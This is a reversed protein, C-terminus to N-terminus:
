TVADGLLSVALAYFNSPNYRRIATFNAYVMFAPGGTGDPMIVAGVPDPRGFPSGDERRVGMRQWEGLPHKVDRGVRSADLDPPVQVPQASPEGYRWGSMALYNAISGLVDGRSDWIDRRGHGEFDVAYRLYSDPMFQPQGMAGAYSGLMRGPMVDGHDLIKLASILQSRFFSARRGEWALTALAEVVNYSGTDTGFNSELGWIGAIPQVDVRYRSSVAAFLARNAAYADRGRAIRKDSMTFSRYRAWTMTFEPQKRDADIVKQNPSIGAFAADLTADRIGARRAEARVGALFSGFSDQAQAAVPLTALGALLLRRRMLVARLRRPLRLQVARVEGDPVGADALDARLHGARGQYIVAAGAELEGVDWKTGVHRSSRFNNGNLTVDTGVAQGDAGAFVYWVFPQTPTYADTGSMGPQIRSVGYDSDLGQGLRFVVGGLAYNRLLGVGVQVTPLADFSVGAADGLPIRWTRQETIEFLAENKLGTGWGKNPTDGIINHFGNQITKGGAGPGVIGGFLSLVTRADGTDHIISGTLGLVGAYPRDNLPPNYSQTNRPTFISQTLDLSVRQVGDGWVQNAATQLSRPVADTGSTWGLRLGSTYYQDSTGRLTSM